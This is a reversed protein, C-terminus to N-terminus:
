RGTGEATLLKLWREVRARNVGLDWYGYTSRSYLIVSAGAATEVAQVRITDPFGLVASRQVFVLQGLADDAAVLETRPQRGLVDRARELLAAVPGAIAPSEFDAEARCTGAPCALADNWAVTRAIVRLDVPEAGAVTGTVAGCLVLIASLVTVIGVPDRM